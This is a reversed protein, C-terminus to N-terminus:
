TSFEDNKQENKCIADLIGNIFSKSEASGYKSAMNVAENILVSKASDQFNLHESVFLYFIIREVKAIKSFKWKTSYKEFLEATKESSLLSRKILKVAFDFHADNLQIDITDKLEDLKGKLATENHETLQSKILALDSDNFHYLFQFSFERALTRTSSTKM